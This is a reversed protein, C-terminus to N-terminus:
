RKVLENEMTKRIDTISCIQDPIEQNSLMVSYSHPAEPHYGHMGSIPKLGMFSPCLLIGENLLFFTDGFRRNDFLVRMEKLEKDSIIYGCESASLFDMIASKAVEDKWWFRAMTSDYFALYDRGYRFGLADIDDKLACLEHVPAMGHDSIIYLSVEDYVKQAFHYLESIQQELSILKQRTADSLPGHAHMVADLKPLYVYTFAVRAESIVRKNEMLIQEESHRWNSCYYPINHNVCWDFITDTALIGGPVFYDKKELYDFYPLYKFPVSYLEFYGTYSHMAKILKSLAHRVRWRDFIQAPLYSFAKLWKFPSNVPDYFFSSWHLHEDPYRGSLISPDAASSFGFTTKLKRANPALASMFGYNQYVEWGLADIFIYMALKKM